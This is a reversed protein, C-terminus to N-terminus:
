PPGPTLIDSVLRSSGDLDARQSEKVKRKLFTNPIYLFTYHASQHYDFETYNQTTFHTMAFVLLPVLLVLPSGDSHDTKPVLLKTIETTLKHPLM